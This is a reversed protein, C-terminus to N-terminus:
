FMLWALLFLTNNDSANRGNGDYNSSSGNFKDFLTYALSFRANLWPTYVLEVMEGSTDASGTRTEFDKTGTISFYQANVGYRQARYYSVTTRTTEIETSSKVHNAASLSGWHNDEHLWIAKLSLQDQSGYFQFQTDIGYDRFSNTALHSLRQDGGEPDTAAAADGYPIYTDNMQLGGFEWSWEGVNKEAALRLYPAFGQIVNQGSATGIPPESGLLASKYFTLEGYFLWSEYLWGVYGGLGAVTGGLEGDIQVVAEPSPTLASSAFPFGWAPTSNWLDQITPNNNLTLGYVLQSGELTKSDVFRIDTNDFSFSDTAGEYTAQLFIGINPTIKGAYFLSFEEPFLVADKQNRVRNLNENTTDFDAQELQAYSILVMASIPLQNNISLNSSSEGIQPESSMVYGNLKFLRGFLTLEPYSVHCAACSVGTQRAFSPVAHAPQAGFAPLTFVILVWLGIRGLRTAPM